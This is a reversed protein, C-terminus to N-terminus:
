GQAAVFDTFSQTKYAGEGIYRFHALFPQPPLYGQLRLIERDAPATEALGDLSQPFFQITPTARLGYKERLTNEPRAEGDFDTVERAGFWNLQLVYFNERVYDSVTADAFNVLHTEKCFPCGKMEWFVALHKGESAAIDLDDALELFSDQVFWPQVYLGDENLYAEASLGVTPTVVAVGAAAALFQRRSFSAPRM